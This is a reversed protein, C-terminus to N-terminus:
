FRVELSIAKNQFSTTAFVFQLPGFGCSLTMDALPNPGPAGFRCPFIHVLPGFEHPPPGFRSLCWRFKSLWMSVHM